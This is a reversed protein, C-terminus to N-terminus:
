TESYLLKGTGYRRKIKRKVKKKKKPLKLKKIVKKIIKLRDIKRVETYIPKLRDERHRRSKLGRIPNRKTILKM